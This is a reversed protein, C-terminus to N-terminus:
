VTLLILYEHNNMDLDFWNTKEGVKSNVQPRPIGDDQSLGIKVLAAM